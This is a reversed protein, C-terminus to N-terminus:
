YIFAFLTNLIIHWSYNKTVLYTYRVDTMTLKERWTFTNYTKKELLISASTKRRLNQQTNNSLFIFTWSTNCFHVTCAYLIARELNSYYAYHRTLISSSRSKGPFIYQKLKRQALVTLILGASLCVQFFVSSTINQWYRNLIGYM